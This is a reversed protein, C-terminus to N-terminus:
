RTAMIRPTIKPIRTNIRSARYLLIEMAIAIILSPPLYVYHGSAKLHLLYFIIFLYSTFLTTDRVKTNVTIILDTDTKGERNTLKHVNTADGTGRRGCLFHEKTGVALIVQLFNQM